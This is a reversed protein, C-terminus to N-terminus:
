REHSSRFHRPTAPTDSYLAYYILPPAIAAHCAGNDLASSPRAAGGTDSTNESAGRKRPGFRGACAYPPHHHRKDDRTDPRRDIGLRMLAQITLHTRAELFLGPIYPDSERMWFESIAARYTTTYVEKADDHNLVRHSPFAESFIRCAYPDM